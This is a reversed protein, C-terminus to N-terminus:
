SYARCATPGNCSLSVDDVFGSTCLTNCSWWVLVSGHGYVVHVFIPSTQSNKLYVLSCGSLCVSLCVCM